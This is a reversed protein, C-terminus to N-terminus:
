HALYALVNHHVNLYFSRRRRAGSVSVLDPGPDDFVSTFSLTPMPPRAGEEDPQGGEGGCQEDAESPTQAATGSRPPHRTSPRIARYGNSPAM